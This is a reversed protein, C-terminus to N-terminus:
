GSSILNKIVYFILRPNERFRRLSYAKWSDGFPVYIRVKHGNDILKQRIGMGVGHLMQFEYKESTLNRKQIVELSKQILWQDHTAIAVYSHNDLTLNVLNMFNQRIISKDRFAIDASERYIGKCIRINISGSKLLNKLDDESRKLYAQIAFGIRNSFTKLHRYIQFTDDTTTSDEIDLRLFFKHKDILHAIKLCNSVTLERDIKLGMQTLKISINVPFGLHQAAEIFCRYTEGAKVADSESQVDEGLVDVTSLCGRRHLDNVVHLGDDITSGAIYRKAFRWIVPDPLKTLIDVIKDTFIGM